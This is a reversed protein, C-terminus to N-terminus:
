LMVSVQAIVILEMAAICALRVLSANSAILVASNANTPSPTLLAMQVAPCVSEM